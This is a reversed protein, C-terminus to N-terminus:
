KHGDKKCCADLKDYAKPDAPLDDADYGAQTIAKKIKDPDTKKPNYNVTIMGTEYDLDFSKIGSTFTFEKQINEKCEACVASTKIKVSETGAFSGTFVFLSFLCILLAKM